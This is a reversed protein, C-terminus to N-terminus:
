SIKASEITWIRPAMIFFWIARDLDVTGSRVTVVDFGFRRAIRRKSLINYYSPKLRGISFWDLESVVILDVDNPEDIDTVFSGDIIISGTKVVSKAEGVFMRLRRMLDQRCDTRRFRGFARAIEELDCDHIGAPSLRHEDFAPLAM